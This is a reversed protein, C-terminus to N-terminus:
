ESQFVHSGEVGFSFLLMVDRNYLLFFNRGGGLGSVYM